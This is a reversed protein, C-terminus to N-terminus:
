FFDEPSFVTGAYQATIMEDSVIEDADALEGYSPSRNEREELLDILCQQKLQLIQSHSIESFDMYGSKINGTITKNYNQNM